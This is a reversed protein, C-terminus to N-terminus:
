FAHEALIRDVTDAVRDIGGLMEIDDLEDSSLEENPM